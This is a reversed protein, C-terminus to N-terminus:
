LHPTPCVLGLSLRMIGPSFIPPLDRAVRSIDFPFNFAILLCRGKYANKFLKDAFEGRTLLAFRSDAEKEAATYKELIQRDKNPLNDGYFLNDILSQRGVIFRYSGFTLCQTQDTRTETDFVLMAEPRNWKRGRQNFDKEADKLDPYVRVAIALSTPERHSM